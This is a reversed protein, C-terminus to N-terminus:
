VLDTVAESITADHCLKGNLHDLEHQFVRAKLGVLKEDHAELTYPDVWKAYGYKPRMVNFFKTANEISFCGEQYFDMQKVPEFELNMMLMGMVIAM